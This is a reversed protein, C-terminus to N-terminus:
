DSIREQMCISISSFLPSSKNHGQGRAEMGVVVTVDIPPKVLQQSITPWIGLIRNQEEEEKQVCLWPSTVDYCLIESNIQVERITCRANHILDSQNNGSRVRPCRTPLYSITLVLLYRSAMCACTASHTLASLQHIIPWPRLDGALYVSVPVSLLWLSAVISVVFFNRQMSHHHKHDCLRQAMPWQDRPHVQDNMSQYCRCSM